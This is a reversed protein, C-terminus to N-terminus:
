YQGSQFFCSSLCSIWTLILCDVIPVCGQNDAPSYIITNRMKILGSETMPGFYDDIESEPYKDIWKSWSFELQKTELEKKAYFM